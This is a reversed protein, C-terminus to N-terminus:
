FPDQEGSFDDMMSDVRRLLQELRCEADECGLWIRFQSCQRYIQGMLAVQGSKEEIDNQNICVATWFM